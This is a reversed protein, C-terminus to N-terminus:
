TVTSHYWMHIQSIKENWWDVPSTWQQAEKANFCCMNKQHMEHDKGDESAVVDKMDCSFLAGHRDMLPTQSGDQQIQGQVICDQGWGIGEGEVLSLSLQVLEQKVSPLHSGAM